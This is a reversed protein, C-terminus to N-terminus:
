ERDALPDTERRRYRPKGSAAPSPVGPKAKPAEGAGVEVDSQASASPAMAASAAAAAVAEEASAVPDAAAPVRQSMALPQDGKALVKPKPAEEESGSSYVAVGIFAAAVLAAIVFKLRGRPDSKLDVADSSVPDGTVPSSFSPSIHALSLRPPASHKALRGDSLSYRDGDPSDGQLERYAQRLAQQMEEASAFRDAKNRQLARDVLEAIPRPVDPEVSQIPPAKQTVALVLSENVTGGEHVYRGTLMTFMSAGMAWLDSRVDVEEWRASAQEPPMFAPTGMAVGALTKGPDSPRNIHAIGFDLLRVTNDTTLFLNEPKIDRHVVGKGHAACLTDLVEDMLSLVELPDLKGGKRDRRAELNEGELLDMVLFACGDETVDDDYVTVAGAHEIHNGVYGERLFRDRFQKHASLEPHLIKVAVRKGNRHSASYVTATGGVGLLREITWKDKLVTGIRATAFKELHAEDV